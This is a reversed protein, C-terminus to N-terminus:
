QAQSIEEKILLTNIGKSRTEVRYETVVFFTLKEQFAAILAEQESNLERGLAVAEGPQGASLFYRERSNGKPKVSIRRTGKGEKGRGKRVVEPAPTAPMEAMTAASSNM